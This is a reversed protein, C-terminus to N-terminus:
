EAKWEPRIPAGAAKKARADSVAYRVTAIRQPSSPHTSWLSMAGNVGPTPRTNGGERRAFILSGKEADYGAAEAIYAGLMDAELEYTQSYAMGGISRGADVANEIDHQKQYYNTNGSGAYAAAMGLILAGALQQGERKELHGAIHHGAEHGMVFAVEDDDRTGQLLAGTIIILPGDANATQFANAPEMPDLDVRITLDCDRKPTEQRCFAEAQPEIRQAVREFRDIGELM